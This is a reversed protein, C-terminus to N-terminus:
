ARVRNQGPEPIGVRFTGINLMGIALYGVFSDFQETFMFVFGKKNSGPKVFWVAGPYRRFFIEVLVREASM